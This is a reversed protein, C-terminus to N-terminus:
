SWRSGVPVVLRDDQRAGHESPGTAEVDMDRRSDLALADSALLIMAGIAVLVISETRPSVLCLLTAIFGTSIFMDGRLVSNGAMRDEARVLRLCNAGAPVIWLLALLVRHSELGLAVLAVLTSYAILTAATALRAAARRSGFVTASTRIGAARDGGFDPVNKFMGKAMFWLTLFAWMALYRWSQWALDAPPPANGRIPAVASTLLTELMRGPETTWGFLFPFVVAQAFVWLGLIPRGKTRFPPSSYQHLGAVALAMFLAFHAGLAVAGALMLGSLARCSWVLPRHGIRALLLLRGPLNRSDERLDTAANHLNASFGVLFALVAGLTVRWCAGGATYSYGLGFALLGPVCTRPRGLMLLTKVWESPATSLRLSPTM